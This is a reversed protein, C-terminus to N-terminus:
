KTDKIAEAEITLKVDDGLGPLSNMGFDSRKINTTASFGATMKDTVPSVGVKNLSVNLTVPKTVGHLTLEGHVSANKEGTVTVTDSVFTATPYKAVDFFLAGKLHKDLKPLGTVIAAVDITASVKSDQPKNKDLQLKGQVYWKGSPSSYGFHSIKWDVYSHSQDFSYNEIAYTVSTLTSIVAFVVWRAINFRKM